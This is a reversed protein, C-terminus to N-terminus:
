RPRSITSASRKAEYRMKKGSFIMAFRWLKAGLELKKEASMNRFIGDQIEQATKKPVTKYM